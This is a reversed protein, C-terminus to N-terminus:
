SGGCKLQRLSPDRKGLSEVGPREGRARNLTTKAGVGGAGGGGMSNGSLPLEGDELRIEDM